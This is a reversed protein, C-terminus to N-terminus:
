ARRSPASQRARSILRKAIRSEPPRARGGPRVLSIGRGTAEIAVEGAFREPDWGDRLRDLVRRGLDAGAPVPRFYELLMEDIPDHTVASGETM